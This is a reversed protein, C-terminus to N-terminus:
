EMIQLLKKPQYKMIRKIPLICATIALVLGCVCVIFISQRSILVTIKGMAPGNSLLIEGLWGAILNSSIISIPIAPLLPLFVEIIMQLVIYKRREGLSLLVGVEFFRGLMSYLVMLCLVIGGMFIVSVLIANAVYISSKMTSSAQLFMLNNTEFTLEGKDEGQEVIMQAADIFDNAKFANNLTYEAKKIGEPGLYDAFEVPTFIYNCDAEYSPFTNGIAGSHIGVIKFEKVKNKMTFSQLTITDGVELHNTEALVRSIIAYSKGEDEKTLHRGELLKNRNEQFFWYNSTDTIGVLNVSGDEWEKSYREPLIELTYTYLDKNFYSKFDEAVAITDSLYSGMKVQPLKEMEHAMQLGFSGLEMNDEHKIALVSIDVSKGIQNIGKEAADRVCISSLVLTLILTFIGFLLLNNGKHYIVSYFARKVFSM